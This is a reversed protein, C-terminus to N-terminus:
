FAAPPHLREVFGRLDDLVQRHGFTGPRFFLISDGDVRIQAPSRLGGLFERMPQDFVVGSSDPPPTSVMVRRRSVAVDWHPDPWWSRVRRMGRGVEVHFRPLSNPLKMWCCTFHVLSPEDDYWRHDELAQTEFVYAARQRISGRLVNRVPGRSDGPLIRAPVDGPLGTHDDSMWELGHEDAMEQVSATHRRDSGGFGIMVVIAIALIVGLSGDPIRNAIDLAIVLAIGVLIALVTAATKIRSRPNRGEVLPHYHAIRIFERM